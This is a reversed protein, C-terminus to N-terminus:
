CPRKARWACVGAAALLISLGCASLWLGARVGFTRYSFEVSHEGPLLEVARHLFNARLITRPEGDVTCRWGSLWSDSLLLFAPRHCCVKFVLHSPEDALWEVSGLPGTAPRHRAQEELWHPSPRAELRPSDFAESADPSCMWQLTEEPTAQVPFECLAARPVCRRNEYVHVAGSPSEVEKWGHREADALAERTVLFRVSCWDFWRLHPVGPIAYYLFKTLRPKDHPFMLRSSMVFHRAPSLPEYFPLTRFAPLASTRMVPWYAEAIYIRDKAARRSLSGLEEPRLLLGADCHITTFFASPYERFRCVYGTALWLDALSAVCVAVIPLLRALRGGGMASWGLFLPALGLLFLAGTCAFARVEAYRLFSIAMLVVYPVAVAALQKRSVACPQGDPWLRQGGLGMLATAGFLTWVLLRDPTRFSGFLPVVKALLAYIPAQSAHGRSLYIGALVAIAFFWIRWQRRDTRWQRRDTFAFWAVFPMFVGLYGFTDRLSLSHPSSTTRYGACNLSQFALDRVDRFFSRKDLQKGPDLYHVEEPALRAPRWTERLYFYAPVLQVSSIMLALLAASAAHCLMRPSRDAICKLLLYVGVFLLSYFMYQPFGALIQLSLVVVAVLWRTAGSLRTSDITFLIWPPWSVAYLLPPWWWEGVLGFELATSALIAPIWSVGLCRLWCYMGMGAIALHLFGLLMLAERLGLAAHIWTLPYYLSTHIPGLRDLGCGVEPNWWSFDRAILRQHTWDAQPIYYDLLDGAPHAKESPISAAVSVVLASLLPFLLAARRWGM